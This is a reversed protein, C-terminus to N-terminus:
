RCNPMIQGGFRVPEDAALAIYVLEPAKKVYGPGHRKAPDASDPLCTESQM